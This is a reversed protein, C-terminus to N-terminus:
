AGPVSGPVAVGAIFVSFNEDAGDTAAGLALALGGGGSRTM